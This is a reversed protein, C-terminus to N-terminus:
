CIPLYSTLLNPLKKLPTIDSHRLIRLTHNGESEEVVEISHIFNHSKLIEFYSYFQGLTPLFTEFNVQINPMTNDGHSLKTTSYISLSRHYIIM